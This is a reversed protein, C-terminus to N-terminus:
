EGVLARVPDVRAAHFAPVACAVIAVVGLVLAVSGMVLPDLPQVEFLQSRILGGMLAAAVAGVGLGIGTVAAGHRLVLGFIQRTTSGLAMRVGMERTRQAVAYALVGYIGIVALFL